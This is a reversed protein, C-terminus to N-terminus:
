GRRGLRRVRSLSEPKVGLYSAILHQPLRQALTPYKRLFHAYKEAASERLAATVREQLAIYRSQILLRM